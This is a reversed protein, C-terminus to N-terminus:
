RPPRTDNQSPQEPNIGLLLAYRILDVRLHGSNYTGTGIFQDFGIRANQDATIWDHVLLLLEGLEICDAAPETEPGTM